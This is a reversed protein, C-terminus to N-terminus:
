ATTGDKSVAKARFPDAASAVQTGDAPEAVAKEVARRHGSVTVKEGSPAVFVVRATAGDATTGPFREELLDFAKQSEIGPMSFEEDSAGPANLAGLGVAALVAARVLAVYWRRRFALRGM